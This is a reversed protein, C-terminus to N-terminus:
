MFMAKVVPYATILLWIFTILSICGIIALPLCSPTQYAEKM